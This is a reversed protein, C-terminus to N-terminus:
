KSLSTLTLAGNSAFARIDFSHLIFGDNFPLEHKSPIFKVSPFEERFPADSCNAPHGYFPLLVLFLGPFSLSTYYGCALSSCMMLFYYPAFCFPGRM